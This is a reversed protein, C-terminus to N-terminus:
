LIGSTALTKLRMFDPLATAYSGIYDAFSIINDENSSQGHLKVTWTIECLQFLVKYITYTELINNFM